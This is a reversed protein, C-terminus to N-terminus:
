LKVKPGIAQARQEMWEILKAVPYAVKRGVRIRGSPGKGACDLNALYKATLIGGSFRELESRAVFPSSWREALISLNPQNQMM